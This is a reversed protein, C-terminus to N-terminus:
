KPLVVGCRRGMTTPLKKFTLNHLTCRKSVLMVVGYPTLTLGLPDSVVFGSRVWECQLLVSLFESTVEQLGIVDAGTRRVSECLATTKEPQDRYEKCVNYTVVRLCCGDISDSHREATASCPVWKGTDYSFEMPTAESIGRAMQEMFQPSAVPPLEGEMVGKREEVRSGDRRTVVTTVPILRSTAESLEKRFPRTKFKSLSQFM